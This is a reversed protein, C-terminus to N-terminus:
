AKGAGLTTITIADSPSSNGISNFAIVTFMYETDPMLGTVNLSDEDATVNGVLVGDTYIYFGLIPANNHHPEVWQLVVSQSTVNQVGIIVPREPRDLFSLKCFITEMFPINLTNGQVLVLAPPTSTVNGALNVGKCFYWGSDSFEASFDVLISCFALRQDPLFHTFIFNEFLAVLSNNHYWEISPIPFGRICCTLYHFGETRTVNIDVPSM